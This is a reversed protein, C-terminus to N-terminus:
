SYSGRVFLARVGLYRKTQAEDIPIRGRKIREAPTEGPVYQLALFHVGESEEPDHIAAINPHNLSALLRAEREFRALREKDKAFAEPLVKVAVERGLKPDLAKYVDGMGGAGLKETIRYHSLTQGIM